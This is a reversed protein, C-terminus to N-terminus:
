ARTGLKVLTPVLSIWYSALVVLGALVVIHFLEAPRALLAGGPSSGVLVLEGAILLAIRIVANASVTENEAFGFCLCPVEDRRHRAIVSLVVLLFTSLMAITLASIWWSFEIALHALGLAIEATVVLIGLPKIAARPFLRYEALGEFFSSIRAAKSVGSAILVLGMAMQVSAAILNM